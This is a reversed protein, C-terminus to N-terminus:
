RLPARSLFVDGWRRDRGALFELIREPSVPSLRRRRAGKFYRFPFAAFVAALAAPDAAPKEIRWAEFLVADAREWFAAPLAAILADDCGQTDSKWLLRFGATGEPAAADLLAESIRRAPAETAAHPRGEVAAANFSFNGANAADRFYRLAGEEVHLGYPEVRAPLAALNARLHALNDPAPEFCSAAAVGPLGLLAQRAFLGINAGIDILRYPPRTLTPALRVVDAFHWERHALLHPFIAGDVPVSLRDGGPFGGRLPSEEPLKLVAGALREALLAFAGRPLAENM